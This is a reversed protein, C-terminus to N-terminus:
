IDLINNIQGGGFGKMGIPTSIQGVCYNEWITLVMNTQFQTESKSPCVCVHTCVYM